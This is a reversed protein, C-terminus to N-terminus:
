TKALPGISLVAFLVHRSCGTCVFLESRLFEVSCNYCVGVKPLETRARRYLDKM